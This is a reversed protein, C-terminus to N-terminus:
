SDFRVHLNHRNRESTADVKTPNKTIKCYHFELTPIYAAKVRTKEKVGLLSALPTAVIRCDSHLLLTVDSDSLVSTLPKRSLKLYNRKIIHVDNADIRTSLITSSASHAKPHKSISLPFSCYPLSLVSFLCLLLLVYHSAM